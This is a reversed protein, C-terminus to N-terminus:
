CTFFDKLLQLPKKVYELLFIKMNFLFKDLDIESKTLSYQDEQFCQAWAM